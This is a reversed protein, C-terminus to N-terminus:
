RAMEALKYRVIQHSILPKGFTKRKMAYHFALQYCLRAKRTADVCITWREHNFNHM